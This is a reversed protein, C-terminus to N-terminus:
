TTLAALFAEGYKAIKASGMGHVDALELLSKPQRRALDVLTKDHAVVYPPVSAAAALKARTARLRQFLEEDVPPGDDPLAPKRSRSATRAAVVRERPLSLRARNRDHMVERGAPTLCLTPYEDGTSAILGAAELSGLLDMVYAHSKHSLVGYTGLQDLRADVVERATSGELVLAIRTRGFRGDLRAVTALVKRVVLHQDDDLPMASSRAACNDCGSCGANADPDGFYGLLYARRCGQAYAYSMMARLRGLEAEERQASKPPGDGASRILFERLRVDAHNFMLVCKAPAGDRGARGAEQWYAESSGPLEHHIVLRVDAKDVGMGFANTAVVVDLAGGMWQDQVGAREDDDLGAHYARARVKRSRLGEAVKEAKKRTATYILARGAAQKILALCRPLKDADGGTTEVSFSLNPRDFGRVFVAPDKMGLQTGIEDRVDPTATATLAVLRPPALARVVEGLRAYDPRFDYGWEAICHAEDVALLAVKARKLEALFGSVRFREPAVYLLRVEGRLAQRLRADREGPDVASNIFTAPIGRQGLADVQDKMLSILPSVVVTLGGLAVAPLQYCLSKGAGTPLVAITARGDLVSQIVERQGPRFADLGFAALARSPDLGEVPGFSFHAQM